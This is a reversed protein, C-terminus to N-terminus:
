RGVVCVEPIGSGSAYPALAIVYLGAFGAMLVAFFVYIVYNFIYAGKTDSAVGAIDSWEKWRDCHDEM